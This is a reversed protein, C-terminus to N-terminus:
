PAPTTSAKGNVPDVVTGTAATTITVVGDKTVNVYYSVGKKAGTLTSLAVSGIKADQNYQFGESTQTMAVPGASYGTDGDGDLVATSAVAYASRMNALDTAERSKELQSTVIPILIAVLVGRLCTNTVQEASNRAGTWRKCHGQIIACFSAM